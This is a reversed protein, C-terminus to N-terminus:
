QGPRHKSKPQMTYQDTHPREALVGARSLGPREWAGMRHCSPMPQADIRANLEQLAVRWSQRGRLVQLVPFLLTLASM